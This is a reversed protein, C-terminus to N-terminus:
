HQRDITAADAHEAGALGHAIPAKMAGIPDPMREMAEAGVTLKSLPQQIAERACRGLEIQM